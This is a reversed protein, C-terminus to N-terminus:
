RVYCHLSNRDPHFERKIFAVKKPVRPDAVPVGRLRVSDVHGYKMFLKKLKQKPVSLPVNGVFITRDKVEEESAAKLKNKVRKEANKENSQTKQKGHQQANDTSNLREFKKKKKIPQEDSEGISPSRKKAKKTRNEELVVVVSKNQKIKTNKSKKIKETKPPVVNKFEQQVVKQKNASSKGSILEAISGVSYDM